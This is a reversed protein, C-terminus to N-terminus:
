ATPNGFYVPIPITPKRDGDLVEVVRVNDDTNEADGYPNIGPYGELTARIQIAANALARELHGPLVHLRFNLNAPDPVVVITVTMRIDVAAEAFVPVHLLTSEPFAKEGSLEASMSKGVSTRVNGISADIQTSQASRLTRAAALLAEAGQGADRFTTRLETVLEAQSVNPRSAQYRCLALMQQSLTLPMRQRYRPDARNVICVQGADSYSSYKAAGPDIWIEPTGRQNDRLDVARRAISELTHVTGSPPAAEAHKLVLEGAANVVYYVGDPECPAEVIRTSPSAAAVLTQIKEIAEAYM